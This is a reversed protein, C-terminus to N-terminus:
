KYYNVNTPDGIKVHLKMFDPKKGVKKKTLHQFSCLKSKWTNHAAEAVFAVAMKHKYDGPNENNNNYYFVAHSLTYLRGM